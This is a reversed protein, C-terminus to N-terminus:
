GCPCPASPAYSYSTKSTYPHVVTFPYPCFTLMVPFLNLHDNPSYVVCVRDAVHAGELHFPVIPVAM